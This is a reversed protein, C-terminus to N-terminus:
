IGTNLKSVLSCPIETLAIVTCGIAVDAKPLIGPTVQRNSLDLLEVETTLVFAITIDALASRTSYIWLIQFPSNQPM